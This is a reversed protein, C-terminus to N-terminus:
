PLFSHEFYRLLHYNRGEVLCGKNFDAMDFTLKSFALAHVFDAAAIHSVIRPFSSM